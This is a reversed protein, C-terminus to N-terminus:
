AKNLRQSKLLQERGKAKIETALQKLGKEDYEFYEGRQIQALGAAVERRVRAKEADREKLLRLAERIVESATQYMGAKVKSAIMKELQPTLSVNM